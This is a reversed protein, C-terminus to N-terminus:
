IGKNTVRGHSASKFGLMTKIPKAKTLNCNLVVALVSAVAVLNLAVAAVFAAVMAVAVVQARDV